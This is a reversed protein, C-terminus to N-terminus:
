DIVGPGDIPLVLRLREAKIPLDSEFIAQGRYLTPILEVNYSFGTQHLIPSGPLRYQVCGVVALGVYIQPANTFEARQAILGDPGAGINHTQRVPQNPFVTANPFWDSEQKARMRESIEKQIVSTQFGWSHHLEATLSVNTAPTGGVNTITFEISARVEPQEGTIELTGVVAADVRLWARNQIVLGERAIENAEKMAKTAEGTDEVALLTADLTRKVYWLGLLTSILQAGALISAWAVWDAAKWQAALDSENRRNERESDVAKSICELQAAGSLGSCEQQIRNPTDAAYHEREIRAREENRATSAGMDYFMWWYAGIGVCAVLFAGVFAFREGWNGRPM